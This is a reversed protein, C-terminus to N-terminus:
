SWAAAETTVRTLPGVVPNALTVTCPDLKPIDAYVCSTLLPWVAHSAVAQIEPVETFHRVLPPTLRVDVTTRVTPSLEPVDVSAHDVSALMTLVTVRVFLPAVPRALTVTCPLLKPMAPYVCSARTPSVAHSAVSQVDSVDTCHRVLPPTLRVDVTTSVTPSLEPVAVSAHDVSALM